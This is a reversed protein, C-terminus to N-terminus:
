RPGRAPCTRLSFRRVNFLLVLYGLPTVGCPCWDLYLFRTDGPAMSGVMCLLLKRQLPEVAGSM